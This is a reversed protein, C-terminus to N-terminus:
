AEEEEGSGPEGPEGPEGPSGKPLFTGVTLRDDDFYTKAVRQVDERTV